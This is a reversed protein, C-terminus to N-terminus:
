RQFPVWTCCPGNPTTEALRRCNAWWRWSEFRKDEGFPAGPQREWHQLEREERTTNPPAGNLNITGQVPDKRRRHGGYLVVCVTPTIGLTPPPLLRRCWLQINTHVHTQNSAPTDLIEAGGKYKWVVATVHILIISILRKKTELGVPPSQYLAIDLFDCNFGGTKRCPLEKLKSQIIRTLTLQDWQRACPIQM